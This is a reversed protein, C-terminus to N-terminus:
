SKLIDFLCALMLIFTPIGICIHGFYYFIKYLKSQHLKTLLKSESKTKKRVIWEIVAFIFLAPYVTYISIIILGFLLSSFNPMPDEPYPDQQIEINNIRCTIVIAIPLLYWLFALINM